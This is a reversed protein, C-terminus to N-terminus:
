LVQFFDAAAILITRDATEPMVSFLTHVSRFSIRLFQCPSHCLGTMGMAFAMDRGMCMGAQTSLGRGHSRSRGYGRPLLSPRGDDRVDEQRPVGDCHKM